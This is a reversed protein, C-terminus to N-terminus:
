WSTSPSQTRTTVWDSSLDEMGQETAELCSFIDVLIDMVGGDLRNRDTAQKGSDLDLEFSHGLAVPSAVPAQKKCSWAISATKKARKKPSATSPDGQAKKERGKPPM